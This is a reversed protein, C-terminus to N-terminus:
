FFIGGRDNYSAAHNSDIKIAKNIFELAKSFNKNLYCILSLLRLSEFHNPQEKLIELCIEEAKNLKKNEYLSIAKKIKSNM